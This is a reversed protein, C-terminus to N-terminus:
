HAPDATLLVIRQRTRSAAHADGSRAQADALSELYDVNEPDSASAASFFRAADTHEGQRARLWGLAACTLPDGADRQHAEFFAEWAAECRGLALRSQGLACWAAADAPCLELYGAWLGAARQPDRGSASLAAMRYLVATERLSPVPVPSLGLSALDVSAARPQSRKKRRVVDAVAEPESAEIGAVALESSARGFGFSFGGFRPSAEPVDESMEALADPVEGFGSSAPVAADAAGADGLGLSPDSFGLEDHELTTTTPSRKKNKGFPWIM